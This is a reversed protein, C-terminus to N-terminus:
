PLPLPVNHVIKALYPKRGSLRQIQLARSFHDANFDGPNVAKRIAEILMRHTEASSDVVLEASSESRLRSKIRIGDEAELLRRAPVNAFVVSGGDNLLVVATKVRDLAAFSAAIRLEGDRLRLMVGLARSLHPLVLKFRAREVEEFPADRIGRYFSLAVLPLSQTDLGFVAGSMAHAHDAKSLFEEYWQTRILDSLPMLEQSLVVNSEIFLRREVVERLWIDRGQFRARWTQLMEESINHAFLFDQASPPTNASFLLAYPRKGM